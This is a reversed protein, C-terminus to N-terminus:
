FQDNIYKFFISYIKDLIKQKKILAMTIRNTSLNLKIFKSKENENRLYDTAFHLASFSVNKNKYRNFSNISYAIQSIENDISNISFYNAVNRQIYSEELVTPVSLHGYTNLQPFKRLLKNELKSVTLLIKYNTMIFYISPIFIKKYLDKINTLCGLKGIYIIESAGLKCLKYAIKSSIDGWFSFKVGLFNIITNNSKMLYRYSKYFSNEYSNLYISDKEKALKTRIEEVYGIIVRDNESVFRPNLETADCIKIEALPYRFIFFNKIKKNLSVYVYKIFSGYHHIYDRGPTVFIFLTKRGNRFGEYFSPRITNFKKATGFYSFNIKKVLNIQYIRAFEEIDNAFVGHMEILLNNKIYYHLTSIPLKQFIYNNLSESMTHNDEFCFPINEIKEQYQFTYFQGNKHLFDHNNFFSIYHSKFHELVSSYERTATNSLFYNTNLQSYTNLIANNMYSKQQYILIM